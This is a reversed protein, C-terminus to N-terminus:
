GRSDPTNTYYRGMHQPADKQAGFPYPNHRGILEAFRPPNRNIAEESVLDALPEQQRAYMRSFYATMGVREGPLQRAGAGHWLNGGFVFVDGQEANVAVAQDRTSQGPAPHARKKHSGPVVYTGGAAESFDDLCWMVNCVHNWEPLPDPLYSADTHMDQPPDGEARIHGHVSSLQCSEGLLYTVLTLPAAAMVAQEVVELGRPLAQFINRSKNHKGAIPITRGAAKDEADLALLRARLATFYSPPKVNKVVTYGYLELEVVNRELGQTIIDEHLRNLRDRATLHAAKRAGSAAFAASVGSDNEDTM